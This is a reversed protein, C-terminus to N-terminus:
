FTSRALAIAAEDSLSGGERGLAAVLELGLREQLVECARAIDVQDTPFRFAGKATFRADAYGLLTAAVIWAQQADEAPGYTRLAAIAALRQIGYLARVPADPCTRLAVDLSEMAREYADDYRDLAILVTAENSLVEPLFAHRWARLTSTASEACRLAAHMDELGFFSTALLSECIGLFYGDGAAEFLSRAEVLLTHAESYAEQTSVTGALGLLAEGLAWRDQQARLLTVLEEAVARAEALRGRRLYAMTLANGVGTANGLKRLTAAWHEVAALAADFEHRQELYVCLVRELKAVIALPTSPQVADLARRTWRLADTLQTEWVGQMGWVSCVLRQGLEVNRGEGLSWAIAARFNGRERDRLALFGPVKDLNGPRNVEVRLKELHEALALCAQAHRKGTQQEEGRQSLREHAFQRTTELLLYRVEGDAPRDVTVLSKDVLSSLLGLVAAIEVGANSCVTKAMELTCGGAFTSLRELLRQEQATLLAYSWDITARMTQERLSANRHGRGLLKLRDGLNAVIADLSLSGSWPATLEIALPIGDLRRCIQAVTNANEDHLVFRHNAARARDAFLAISAYGHAETATLKKAADAQPVPLSPLRYCHEGADRLPERSTALIRVFLCDSLIARAVKAAEDIVHECNDLVLLVKKTRLYTRITDLLTREPDERLGLSAAIVAPVLSPDDVTSLDAFVVATGTVDGFATAVRLATRTKGIGASGILTVLRRESLEATIERVEVDRGIFSSLPLPLNASASDFWPDVTSIRGAAPRAADELEQCQERNLALAESLLALTERQPTRRYGRELAGIGNASM